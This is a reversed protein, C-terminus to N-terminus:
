RGRGAATASARGRALRKTASAGAKDRRAERMSLIIGFKEVSQVRSKLFIKDGVLRLGNVAM